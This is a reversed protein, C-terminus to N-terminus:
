PCPKDYPPRCAADSPRLKALEAPLNVPRDAYDAAREKPPAPLVITHGSVGTICYHTLPDIMYCAAAVLLPFPM